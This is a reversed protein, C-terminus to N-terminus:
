ARLGHGPGPLAHLVREQVGHPSRAPRPLRRAPVHLRVQFIRRAPGTSAAAEHRLQAGHGYFPAWYLTACSRNTLLSVYGSPAITPGAREPVVQTPASTSLLGSTM